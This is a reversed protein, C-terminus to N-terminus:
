ASSVCGSLEDEEKSADVDSCRSSDAGLVMRFSTLLYSVLGDWFWASSFLSSFTDFFFVFSEEWDDDDSLERWDSIFDDDLSAVRSLSFGDVSSLDILCNIPLYSLLIGDKDVDAKDAEAIVFKPSFVGANLESVVTWLLYM